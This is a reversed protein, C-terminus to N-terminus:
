PRTPMRNIQRAGIWTKANTIGAPWGAPGTDCIKLPTPPPDVQRAVSTM